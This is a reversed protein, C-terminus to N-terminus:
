LIEKLRSLMADNVVMSFKVTPEEMEFQSLIRLHVFGQPLDVPNIEVRTKYGDINAITMTRLTSM